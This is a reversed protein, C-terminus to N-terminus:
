YTTYQFPTPSAVVHPRANPSMNYFVAFIVIAGVFISAYLILMRYEFLIRYFLQNSM